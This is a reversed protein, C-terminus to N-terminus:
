SASCERRRARLKAARRMWPPAFRKWECGPSSAPRWGSWRPMRWGLPRGGAASRGYAWLAFALLLAALLAVAMSTAGLQRGVVWFLWLATALMPFALVRRFSEMWPGPRPLIRGLAPMLTLTLYPLALGFGLALFVALAMWAPQALAYGLASAM